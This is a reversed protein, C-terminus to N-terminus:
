KQPTKDAPPDPQLAKLATRLDSITLELQGIRQMYQDNQEMLENNQETLTKLNEVAEKLSSKLRTSEELLGNVIKAAKELQSNVFRNESALTQVAYTLNDSYQQAVTIQEGQRQINLARETRYGEVGVYVCLIILTVLVLSNYATRM